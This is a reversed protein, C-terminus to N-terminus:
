LFNKCLNNSAEEITNELKKMFDEKTLGPKIAPLFEITITGSKKLFGTKPWFVGSNLAVPVVAVNSNKYISAIGVQYPYQSTNAFPLVRTGQPFIIINQRNKIYYSSSKLLKRISSLGDQRNIAIGSMKRIYWGYFPIKLLEKKYAYVPYKFILHMVVTEWMSQHKCAIIVPEGDQPINELGIIKHDIQCLKRLFFLVLIAWNKAGIDALTSKKFLFAPSFLIPILMGLFITLVTFIISLLLKM